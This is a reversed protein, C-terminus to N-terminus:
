SPITGRRARAVDDVNFALVPPKAPVTEAFARMVLSLEELTLGDGFRYLKADYDFEVDGKKFPGFGIPDHRLRRQRWMGTAPPTVHITGIRDMDLVRKVRLFGLENRLEINGGRIVAIRRGFLAWIFHALLALFLVSLSRTMFVEEPHARGARIDHMLWTLIFAWGALVPADRALWVARASHCISVVTDSGVGDRQITLAL